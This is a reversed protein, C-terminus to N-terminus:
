TKNGVKLEKRKEKIIRNGSKIKLIEDRLIAAKEFELRRAAEQMEQTLKEIWKEKTEGKEKLGEV